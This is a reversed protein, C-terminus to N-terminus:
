RVLVTYTAPPDVPRGDKGLHQRVDKLLGLHRALLDLSATKPSLKVTFNGAKDWSWGVIARRVDEPLGAIDAPGELRQAGIVGADYFALCSLESIVRDQSVETRRVRTAQGAAIAARVAPRAMLKTVQREANRASYGVRIAAQRGNLDVLYEAVFRQQRLSLVGDAKGQEVAM